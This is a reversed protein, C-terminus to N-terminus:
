RYNELVNLIAMCFAQLQGNLPESVEKILTETDINEDGYIYPEIAAKRLLNLKKCHLNLFLITNKEEETNGSIEGSETYSFHSLVKFVLPNVILLSSPDKSGKYSDCHLDRPRAPEREGGNCSALLNQYNFIDERYTEKPLYHEIKTDLSEGKITANCYCCLYFQEKILSDRLQSKSYDDPVIEKGLSSQLLEWLVDGKKGEANYRDITEQNASKWKVFEDPEINKHIPKM